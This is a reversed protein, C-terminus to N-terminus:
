RRATQAGKHTGLAASFWQPVNVAEGKYFLTCVGPDHQFPSPKDSLSTAPLVTHGQASTGQLDGATQKPLGQKGSAVPM